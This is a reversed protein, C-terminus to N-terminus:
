VPGFPTQLLNQVSVHLMFTAFDLIKVKIAMNKYQFLRKKGKGGSLNFHVPVARPITSKRRRVVQNFFLLSLPIGFILKRGKMKM